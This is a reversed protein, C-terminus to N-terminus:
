GRVSQKNLQYWNLTTAIGEELSILPKWGLANVKSSNLLKRVMGNPMTNDYKILGKFGVAESILEALEIIQVDKGSGVNLFPMRGDVANWYAKKELGLIFVCAKALDDVHM